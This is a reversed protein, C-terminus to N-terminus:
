KENLSNESEKKNKKNRLREAQLSFSKEEFFSVASFVLYFIMCFIMGVLFSYFDINSM